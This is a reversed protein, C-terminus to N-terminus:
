FFILITELETSIYMPFFDENNALNFLTKKFLIGVLTKYYTLFTGANSGDYCFDLGESFIHLNSFILLLLGLRLFVSALRGTQTNLYLMGLSQHSVENAKRRSPMDFNYKSTVLAIKTLVSSM